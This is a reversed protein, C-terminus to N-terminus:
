GQGCRHTPDHMVEAGARSRKRRRSRAPRASLPGSRRRRETPSQRANVQESVRPQRPAIARKRRAAGTRTPAPRERWRRATACGSRTPSGSARGDRRARRRPAAVPVHRQGGVAVDVAPRPEVEDVLLHQAVQIQAHGAVVVSHREPEEPSKHRTHSIGHDANTNLAMACRRAAANRGSQRLAEAGARQGSRSPASSRSAAMQAAKGSSNKESRWAAPTSRAAREGASHRSSARSARPSAPM